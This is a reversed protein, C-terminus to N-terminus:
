QKQIKIVTGNELVLLYLGPNLDRLSLYQHDKEIITKSIFHGSLDTVIATSHLLGPDGIAIEIGEKAPNPYVTTAKGKKALSLLLINSLRVDGSKDQILLRYFNLMQPQRDTFSYEGTGSKKDENISYLTEYIKGDTSRQLEIGASQWITTQWQLLISNNPQVKGKFDLLTQALPTSGFEYAGMDVTGGAIRVNGGFDTVTATPIASNNGMNIVPSLSQIDYDGGTAPALTNSLANVFLPNANINGTGPYIGASQEVLSYSVVPMSQPDNAINTGNDYIICNRFAATSEDNQIGCGILDSRNGAITCNVYVPSQIYNRMAGGGILGVNGTFICNDFVPSCITNAVAGGYAASNGKFSCRTIFGNSYDENCLAGGSGGGVIATNGTFTCNSILPSSGSNCIAGANLGAANNTFLCNLISPSSGSLYMAAGTSATNATFTCNEITPSSAVAFLAGGFFTTNNNTFLCNSIKIKGGNNNSVMIIGGGNGKTVVQGNVTVYFGPLNANGNRITLGDIIVSDALATLGAIIMVHYSNDYDAASGVNGDLITSYLNIDRAGGGNPYGGYIRRGGYVIFSADPYLGSGTAPPFYTGKAVLIRDGSLSNSIATGLTPYATGWSTGNNIGSTNASDVYITAAVSNFQFLCLIALLLIIKLNM